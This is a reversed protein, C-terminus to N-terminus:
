QGIHNTGAKALTPLICMPDPQTLTVQERLRARLADGVDHPRQSPAAKPSRSEM